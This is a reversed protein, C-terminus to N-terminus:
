KEFRGVYDMTSGRELPFRVPTGRAASEYIGLVLELAKRGEAGSCVPERGQEVAQIMDRYLPTHGAGLDVVAYKELSEPLSAPGEAFQWREAQDLFKGSVSVTGKEGFFAMSDSLNNPYVNVTGEILAYAGSKFKVLALGMDEAETYPHCLNDTYAFVEEADGLIWQLLDTYHICQNMLTGGDNKWTGRWPGVDFYAKNRNRRVQAAAHFMKGFDGGDAAAKVARVSPVFRLQHNVCLKVGNRKACEIMADADELSLAIPKEVIVNAGADMCDCAIARKVGSGLAVAALEPRVEALMARYDAFLKVGQRKEEPLLSLAKERNEEVLDCLAAIELGSELAAKIHAASIMGCGILAYKM